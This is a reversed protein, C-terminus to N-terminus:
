KVLDKKESETKFSWNHGLFICWALIKIDLNKVKKLGREEIDNVMCDGVIEIQTKKEKLKDVREDNSKEKKHLHNTEAHM